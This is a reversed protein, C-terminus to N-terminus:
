SIFTIIFYAIMVIYELFCLGNMINDVQESQFIKLIYKLSITIYISLTFFLITSFVLADKGTFISLFNIVCLIYVVLRYEFISFLYAQGLCASELYKKIEKLM